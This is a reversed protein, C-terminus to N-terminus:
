FGIHLKRREEEKLLKQYPDSYYSRENNKELKKDLWVASRARYSSQTREKTENFQQQTNELEKIAENYKQHYEREDCGKEREYERGKIELEHEAEKQREHIIEREMSAKTEEDPEANLADVLKGCEEEVLIEKFDNEGEAVRYLIRTQNNDTPMLSRISSAKLKIKKKGGVETVSIEIDGKSSDSFKKKM